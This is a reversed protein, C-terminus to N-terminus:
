GNKAVLRSFDGAKRTKTGKFMLHELFHAIGTEGPEEDAAGVRYWIMHKVVPARPNPVVVVTLGNDLTFTEAGFVKAKAVGSGGGLLVVASLVVIFRRFRIM